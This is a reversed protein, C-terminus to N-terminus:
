TDAADSWGESAPGPATLRTVMEEVRAHRGLTEAEAKIRSGRGKTIVTLRIIVPPPLTLVILGVLMLLGGPLMLALGPLRFGRVLLRNKITVQGRMDLGNIVFNESNQTIRMADNNLIKLSYAPKNAATQRLEFLLNEPAYVFRVSRNAAKFVLDINQATDGKVFTVRAIAQATVPVFWWGEFRYPRQLQRSQSNRNISLHAIGPGATEPTNGDFSIGTLRFSKGALLVPTEAQTTLLGEASQGWITQVVGGAITTLLGAAVLAPGAWRWLHRTATVSGTSADPLVTFGDAQLNARLEALPVAASTSKNASQPATLRLTKRVFRSLPHPIAEPPPTHPARLRQWTAPLYDALIILTSLTVVAMPLRFWVTQYVQFLGLRNLTQFSQQYFQPLNSLWVVFDGPMTLDAPQQPVMVALLLSGALALLSGIFTEPSRLRQWLSAPSFLQRPPVSNPKNNTATM